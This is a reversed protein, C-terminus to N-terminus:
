IGVENIEKVLDIERFNEKFLIKLDQFSINNSYKIKHATFIEKLTEINEKADICNWYRKEPFGARIIFLDEIECWVPVDKNWECKM